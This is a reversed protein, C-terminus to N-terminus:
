LMLFTSAYCGPGNAVVRFGQSSLQRSLTDELVVRLNQSAHLPKVNSRGSDIVAVFQATRLDKSKVVVPLNNVQQQNSSAPSPAITLQPERPTSCGALVLVVAAIILKKM